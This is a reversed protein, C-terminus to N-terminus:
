AAPRTAESEVRPTLYREPEDMFAERNETSAFYYIRGEYELHAATQVDVMEGSVPDREYEDDIRTASQTM